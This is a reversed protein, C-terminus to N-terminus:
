RGRVTVPGTMMTMPRTRAGTPTFRASPLDPSPANVRTGSPGAIALYEGDRIELNIGKVATFNGFKKVLDKLVIRAM